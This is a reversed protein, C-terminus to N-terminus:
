VCSVAKFITVCVTVDLGIYMCIQSGTDSNVLKVILEKVFVTSLIPTSLRSVHIEPVLVRWVLWLLVLYDACPLFHVILRVTPMRSLIHISHFPIEPLQLSYRRYKKTTPHENNKRKYDKFSLM